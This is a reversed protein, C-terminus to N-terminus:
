LFNCRETRQDADVFVLKNKRLTVSSFEKIQDYIAAEINVTLIGVSTFLQDVTVVIAVNHGFCGQESNFM